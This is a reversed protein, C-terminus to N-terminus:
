SLYYRLFQIKGSCVEKNVSLFYYYILFHDLKLKDFYLLGLKFKIIFKLGAVEYRM